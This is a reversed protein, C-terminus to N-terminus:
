PFIAFSPQLQVAEIRGGRIRVRGKCLVGERRAEVLVDCSGNAAAELEHHPTVLEIREYGLASLRNVVREGLNLASLPVLAESAGARQEQARLLLEEVRKSGDRLDIM